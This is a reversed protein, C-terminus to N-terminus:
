RPRQRETQLLKEFARPPLPPQIYPALQALGAPKAGAHAAHYAEHARRLRDTYDDHWALPGSNAGHSGNAEVRVRSDYDEDVAATERVFWRPRRSATDPNTKIEYRQLIAPDIPPDFHPALELASKPIRTLDSLTFKQAAASLRTIFHSKAATRLAALSQRRDDDSNFSATRGLRLWDDDGLLQMEPIMQEPHRAALDRLQKIRAIWAAIAPERPETAPSAISVTIPPLRSLQQEALQLDRAFSQQQLRLEALQRELATTRQRLAELQSRQAPALHVHVAAIGCWAVLALGLLLFRAPTM